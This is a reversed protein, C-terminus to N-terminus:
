NGDDGDLVVRGAMMAVTRLNIKTPPLPTVRKRIVLLHSNHTVHDKASGTQKCFELWQKWDRHGLHTDVFVADNEHLINRVEEGLEDFQELWKHMKPDGTNIDEIIYYGGPKILRFLKKLFAEQQFQMHMADEILIDMTEDHLGAELALDNDKGSLKLLNLQVFNVRDAMQKVIKPVSDPTDVDYGYIHANPFYHYWAQLSQGASVGIETVNRIQHRIPNFIMQYYDTYGHDDKSKDSGYKYFLEELYHPHHDPSSLERPLPAAASAAVTTTTTAAERVLQLVVTTLAAGGNALCVGFLVGCGFVAGLFPLRGAVHGGESQKNHKMGFRVM